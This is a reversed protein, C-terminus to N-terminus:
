PTANAVLSNFAAVLEAQQFTCHGYRGFPATTDLFREAGADAVKDAYIGQHAVPIIPDGTTHLTVLPRTLVGTTQFRGIAARAAPDATYRAIGANLAADDVSGQYVRTSNDYPQGGLRAKADETGFVTYWLLGIVTEGVTSIDLPDVPANTVLLLQATKGPDGTLADLIAPVYVSEWNKRVEAPSEVPSGPLVGPFFYDFVARFDALYDLQFAFDGIPGCAALGGAYTEPEQEVALAAVLGGESAGVVFTRTPDPEWRARFEAQLDLLDQVAVDAVLGNARYSTTAYAYGLANVATSVPVGGVVDPPLVVPEDPSVYGHAFVVLDGNWNGPFCVRTLAGSPLSADTCGAVPPQGEDVPGTPGDDDDDGCASLLLAVAVLRHFRSTKM